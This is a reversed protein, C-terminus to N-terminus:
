MGNKAIEAILKCIKEILDNTVADSNLDNHIKKTIDNKDNVCISRRLENLDNTKEDSDQLFFFINKKLKIKLFLNLIILGEQFKINLSDFQDLLNEYDTSNM